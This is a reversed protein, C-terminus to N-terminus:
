AFFPLAAPISSTPKPIHILLPTEHLFFDGVVIVQLHVNAPPDEHFVILRKQDPFEGQFRVILPDIQAVQIGGAADATRVSPNVLQQAADPRLATIEAAHHGNIIQQAMM